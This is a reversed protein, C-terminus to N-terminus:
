EELVHSVVEELEDSPLVEVFNVRHWPIIMATTEDELYHLDKGDRLRPNNVTIIQDTPEPLRDVEAVVPDENTIHLVILISM